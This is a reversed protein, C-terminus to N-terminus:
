MKVYYAGSLAPLKILISNDKGHASKKTTKYVKKTIKGRGGFKIDDSNILLKYKGNDVGLYYHDFDM